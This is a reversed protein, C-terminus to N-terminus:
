KTTSISFKWGYTLGSQVSIIPLGGKENLAYEFAMREERSLQEQALAIPDPLDYFTSYSMLSSTGATKISYKRKTDLKVQDGAKLVDNNCDFNQNAAAEANSRCRYFIDYISNNKLIFPLAFSSNASTLLLIIGILKTSIQNFKM